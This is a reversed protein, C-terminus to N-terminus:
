DAERLKVYTTFSTACSSVNYISVAIGNGAMAGHILKIEGNVKNVTDPNNNDPSASITYPQVLKLYRYNEGIYDKTYVCVVIDTELSPNTVELAYIRDLRGSPMNITNVVKLTNASAGSNWTVSKTEDVVGNHLVTSDYLDEIVDKVDDIQESVADLTSEQALQSSPVDWQGFMWNKIETLIDVCKGM